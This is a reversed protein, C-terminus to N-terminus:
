TARGEFILDLHVRLMAAVDLPAQKGFLGQWIVTVIMPGVLLQPFEALGPNRIEGRAIGYEILKRMGAIGHAVVERYYFEALQPFRTGESIIMRVIDARKTGIVERAFTEALAEMAARASGGGVGIPPNAIRVILPGLATRVLEQFLAEKDKFHLYITGKAVGARKAVDDLRTAAFGKATFEDLGAAVIAARRETAGVARKSPRPHAARDAPARAKTGRAPKDKVPRTDILPLKAM